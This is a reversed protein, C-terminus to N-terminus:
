FSGQVGFTITRALPYSYFENSITTNSGSGASNAEPNFGMYDSWTKLNRGSVFLRADALNAM